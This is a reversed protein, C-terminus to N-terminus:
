GVIITHAKNINRSIELQLFAKRLYQCSLGRLPSPACERWPSPDRAVSLINWGFHKCLKSKGVKHTELIRLLHLRPNRAERAGMRHVSAGSEWWIFERMVSVSVVWEKGFHGGGLEKNLTGPRLTYSNKGGFSVRWTGKVKSEGGGDQKGALGISQESSLKEVRDVTVSM